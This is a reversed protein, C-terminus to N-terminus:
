FISDVKNDIREVFDQSCLQRALDPCKDEYEKKVQIWVQLIDKIEQSKKIKLYEFVIHAIYNIKEFLAKENEVKNNKLNNLIEEVRQLFQNKFLNEIEGGERFLNTHTCLTKMMERLPKLEIRFTKEKKKREILTRALNEYAVGKENFFPFNMAFIPGLEELSFESLNNNIYDKFFIKIKESCDYITRVHSFSYFLFCFDKTSLNNMSKQINEKKSGLEEDEDFFELGKYDRRLKADNRKDDNNVNELTCNKVFQEDFTQYFLTSGYINRAYAHLITTFDQNNFFPCRELCVAELERFFEESGMNFHDYGRLINALMWENLNNKDAIIKRELCNYVERSLVPESFKTFSILISSIGLVGLKDLLAKGNNSNIESLFHKTSSISHIKSYSILIQILDLETFTNPNFKLILSDISRYFEPLNIELYTYSYFIMSIARPSFSGIKELIKPEIKILEDKSKLKALTYIANAMEQENMLEVGKLIFQILISNLETKRSESPLKNHYFFINSIARANDSDMKAQELKKIAITTLQNSINSLFNNQELINQSKIKSFELLKKFSTSLNVYNMHNKHNILITSLSSIDRTRLIIQNLKFPDVISLKKEDLKTLFGFYRKPFNRFFM